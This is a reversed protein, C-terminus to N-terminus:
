ESYWESIASVVGDKFFVSTHRACGESVRCLYFFEMDGHKRMPTEPPGTTDPRGMKVVAQVQTQGLEVGTRARVDLAPGTEARRCPAVTSLMVRWPKQDKKDLTLLLYRTEGLRYCGEHKMGPFMSQLTALPTEALEDLYVPDAARSSQAVLLLSLVAFAVRM